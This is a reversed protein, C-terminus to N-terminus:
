RKSAQSKKYFEVMKRFTPEFGRLLKNDLEFWYVAFVLLILVSSILFLWKALNIILEM